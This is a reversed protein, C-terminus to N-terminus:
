RCDIDAESGVENPLPLKARLWCRCNLSVVAWYAGGQRAKAFRAVVPGAKVAAEGKQVGDRWASRRGRRAARARRAARMRLWKAASPKRSTSGAAVAM